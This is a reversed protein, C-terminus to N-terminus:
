KKLPFPPLKPLKKLLNFRSPESPTNEPDPSLTANTHEYLKPEPTYAIVRLDDLLISGLGNLSMTLVLNETQPIERILDFKQWDSKESWHLAGGPGMISDQLTAGQQNGTISTTVKIWGTIHVIQGSRVALPPTTVRVLPGKINSPIENRKLPAALLRLSFNGSKKDRPYLEAIAETGEISNQEHKWREVVMTDIDEFDGSRLMNPEINKSSRGIREIMKWHDPLTSYSITFPSTLASSFTRTAEHWQTRQLIRLMQMSDCARMRATRYDRSALATEAESALRQSRELIAPGDMRAIQSVGLHVLEANTKQCRELKAQCLQVSTEASLQSLTGVKKRLKEILGQDSTMIIISTMDFKPITIQVGGNVRKRELNRIETTSLEWASASVNGGPVIITAENGAMQDPVYQANNRYWVPLILVGYESHIIAAQLEQGIQKDQQIQLEREALLEDRLLRKSGSNKFAAGLQRIRPTSRQRLSFPIHSTVTGRALWPEILEIEMNLQRIALKRELAGPTTTDDLRNTTWYGTARCGASLAAYTQLRIQEPEIVIPTKNSGSRWRKNASTPETQIWTWLFRGPAIRSKDILTNRYQLLSVDSNLIHPSSGIMSVERAIQRENGLVDAMIPRKFQRDASQIQGVRSLLEVGQKGPIRTGLNWFIIPATQDEFPILTADRSPLFSGHEDQPRPPTAMAWLGQNQLQSLFEYDDFQPAWVVNLGTQKLEALNEGHFRTMRPFMPKGQVQIRDLLFEVIPKSRKKHMAAASAMVSQSPKVIPSLKLDDLLFEVQDSSSRTVILVREVYMDRTDVQRLKSRGRLLGISQNVLGESTTCRLQQWKEEDTYTDGILYIRAMTGTEPDIQHPLVAELGIRTGRRNSKLWLSVTLENIIRSSPLQHSLEIISGVNGTVIQLHEAATGEHPTTTNRVHWKKQAQSPDIRVQWSVKSTDDFNAHYTEARLLSASCLELILVALLGIRGQILECIKHPM